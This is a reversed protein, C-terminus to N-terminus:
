ITGGFFSSSLIPTKVWFSRSKALIISWIDNTKSFIAMKDGFMPWFRGFNHDYCQGWSCKSPEQFLSYTPNITKLFVTVGANRGFVLAPMQEFNQCKYFQLSKFSTSNYFKSVQLITFNQFKYFQLIKFSTSNYFKSVQLITFNLCKYFQLSKVSSSNNSFWQRFFYNNRPHAPAPPLCACTPSAIMEL